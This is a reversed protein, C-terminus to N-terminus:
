KTTSVQIQRLLKITYMPQDKIFLDPLKGGSCTDYRLRNDLDLMLGQSLEAWIKQLINRSTEEPTNLPIVTLEKDPKNPAPINKWCRGLAKAVLDRINLGFSYNIILAILKTETNPDNLGKTKKAMWTMADKYITKPLGQFSRYRYVIYDEDHRRLRFIAAHTNDNYTTNLNIQHSM